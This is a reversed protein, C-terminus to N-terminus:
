AGPGFDIAQADVEIGDARIWYPQVSRAHDTRRMKLIRLSLDIRRGEAATSYGLLIVGDAVYESLGDRSVGPHLPDAEATFV